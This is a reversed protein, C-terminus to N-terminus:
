NVQDSVCQKDVNAANTKRRGSKNSLKSKFFIYYHGCECRLIIYITYMYLVGSQPLLSCPLGDPIPIPRNGSAVSALHFPLNLAFKFTIITFFVRVM